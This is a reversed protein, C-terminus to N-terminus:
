AWFALSYRQHNPNYTKSNRRNIKMIWESVGDPESNGSLTTRPTNDSKPKGLLSFLAEITDIRSGYNDYFGDPRIEGVKNNYTNIICNMGDIWGLRNGFTDYIYNLGNIWGLRSGFKDNFVYDGGQQYGLENGNDDVIKPPENGSKAIFKM